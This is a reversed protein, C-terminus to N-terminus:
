ITLSQFTHINFYNFLRIMHNMDFIFLNIIIINMYSYLHVYDLIDVIYYKMYESNIFINVNKYKNDNYM